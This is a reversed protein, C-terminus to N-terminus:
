WFLNMLAKYEDKNKSQLKFSSRDIVLKPDGNWRAEAKTIAEAESNAFESNWGGGVFHYMYEEQPTKPVDQQYEHYEISSSKLRERMDTLHSITIGLNRIQKGRDLGYCGRYGLERSAIEQAIGLYRRYEPSWRFYEDHHKWYHVLTTRDKCITKAIVMSRAYPKLSNALAARMDVYIQERAPHTYGQAEAGITEFYEKAIESYINDM